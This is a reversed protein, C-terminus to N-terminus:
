VNSRRRRQRMVVVAGGEARVRVRDAVALNCVSPRESLHLSADEVKWRVGETSVRVAPDFTAFSWTEGPEAELVIEGRVAVLTERESEFRLADGMGRRALLGLNALEHDTRGGTAALVTLRELGLEEFAFDLAKDLDTRDQDPRPVMAAEGLWARTAASLSDLDGVVASARLGLRALHDAGSDAALLPEGAAAIAALGATWVLPAGAVLVPRPQDMAEHYLLAGRGPSPAPEITFQDDICLVVLPREPVTYM